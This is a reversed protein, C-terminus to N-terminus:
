VHKRPDKIPLRGSHRDSPSCDMCFPDDASNYPGLHLFCGFHSDCPQHQIRIQELHAGLYKLGYLEVDTSHKIGSSLHDNERLIQLWFCKKLLWFIVFRVTCQWMFHKNTFFLGPCNKATVSSIPRSTWQLHGFTFLITNEKTSCCSSSRSRVRHKPAICQLLYQGEWLAAQLLTWVHSAHVTQSRTCLRGPPQGVSLFSLQLSLTKPAKSQGQVLDLHLHVTIQSTPPAGCRRQILLLHCLVLVSDRKM